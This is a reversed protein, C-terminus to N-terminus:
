EIGEADDSWADRLAQELELALARAERISLLLTDGFGFGLHIRAPNYESTSAQYNCRIRTYETDTDVRQGLSIFM